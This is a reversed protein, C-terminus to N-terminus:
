KRDFDFPTSLYTEIPGKSFYAFLVFHLSVFCFSTNWYEVSAPSNYKQIFDYTNRKLKIQKVDNRSEVLASLM